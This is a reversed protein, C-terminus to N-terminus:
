GGQKVRPTPNKCRGAPRQGVGSRGLDGLEERGREALQKLREVTEPHRDAVNRRSGIDEVVNFLFAPSPGKGSHHPHQVPRDLPVFLKWPGSRVAQLQDGRYYYFVDHPTQARPEGFLLPRIDKGDITRDQPAETGALHAFTPLLDMTTAMEHCTKGAPIRGPWWFITPVRFGAEATTYGRGFLPKNSGRSPDDPKGTTPAGNDSTWVVLTREELALERLKKLIQGLSWDLEEIADGWPGNRNKGRFADSAFPARTSGPMAQPLYLFFPRNHNAEIVEIARETERRTLLNRDVPAEVVQEDVMLPLPPWQGPPRKDATMDDSYPVGFYSDFGQRTPLFRRQDGLHWKGIIATAYGQSKLIEAITIEDPHLGNPSVPRLVIGDPEPEALGVRQAYCGTMFSARSPTCVGASAYFHTFRTGEAAMRDLNPTRHIESGFPGIDGYGLNDTVILVINPPREAPMPVTQASAATAAFQTAVLLLQWKM